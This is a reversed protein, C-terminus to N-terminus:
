VLLFLECRYIVVGLVGIQLLNDRLVIREKLLGLGHFRYLVDVNRLLM